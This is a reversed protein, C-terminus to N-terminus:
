PHPKSIALGIFGILTANYDIAYENTAYSRSDDIYSLPGKNKPGINSQEKENPGGVFLGDLVTNKASLYIHSVHSVAHEGVGSVFSLNFPNTGFIYNLQAIAADLYVSDGSLRYAHLLIIGEEATMKNSGWIFRKNAIRYGSETINELLGKAHIMVKEQVSARLESYASLKPNFLLQSLALGSPNKWEFIQLGIDPLVQRIYSQYSPEGTSILLEMAAWLRDDTDTKLSAEDDTENYRYPGSGKDDGDVYDFVQQERTELYVWGKKAALLYRNALKPLVSKYVRAALAWAAVAKATEASSVGYIYRSQTDEDPTLGSPWSEGSLKRYLAGDARQMTIMWDLGVRMEDLVDPIPNGSEPIDLIVGALIQPHREYLALIRGVAVATTTVYKGYDGADHWGGQSNIACMAPHFDDKHKIIGDHLHCAAHNLGTKADYIAIGCRQLYYSRLLLKLPQHYINNGISFPLSQVKNIRIIYRGAKNFGSFDLEQIFDGTQADQHPKCAFFTFVIDHTEADLIHFEKSTTAPNVRLAIKPMNILYGVQNVVLQETQAAYSQPAWFLVNVFILIFIHM